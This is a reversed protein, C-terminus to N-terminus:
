EDDSFSAKKDNTVTRKIKDVSMKIIFGLFEDESLILNSINKFYDYDFLKLVLATVTKKLNNFKYNKIRTLFSYKRYILTTISAYTM